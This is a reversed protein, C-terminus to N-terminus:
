DVHPWGQGALMHTFWHFGLHMKPALLFVKRCDSSDQLSLCLLVPTFIYGRTSRYLLHCCSTDKLSAPHAGIGPAAPQPCSSSQSSRKRRMSATWDSAAMALCRWSWISLRAATALSASLPYFLSVFLKSVQSTCRYAANISKHSAVWSGCFFTRSTLHM